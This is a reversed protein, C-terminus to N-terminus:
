GKVIEGVREGLAAAIAGSAMKNMVYAFTIRRDADIALLSGGTGAGDAAVAPEAINNRQFRIGVGRNEKSKRRAHYYKGTKPGFAATRLV